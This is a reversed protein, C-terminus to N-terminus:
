QSKEKTNKEKTATTATSASSATTTTTAETAERQMETLLDEIKLQLDGQQNKILDFVVHSAATGTTQRTEHKKREDLKEDVPNLMENLLKLLRGTTSSRAAGLIKKVAKDIDKIQQENAKENPMLMGKLKQLQVLIRGGEGEGKGKELPLKHFQMILDEVDVNFFPVPLDFLRVGLYLELATLASAWCDWAAGDLLFYLEKKQANIAEIKSPITSLEKELNQLETGKSDGLATIQQKIEKQRKVLANKADKLEMAKKQYIREREFAEPPVMRPNAVPRSQYKKGPLYACTGRDFGLVKKQLGLGLNSPKVDFWSFNNITLDSVGEFIQHILNLKLMDAEESDGYQDNIAGVVKSLDNCVFKDMVMQIQYARDLPCIKAQEKKQKSDVVVVAGLLEVSHNPSFEYALATLRLEHLVDRVTFDEKLEFSKVAIEVDRDLECQYFCVAGYGGACTETDVPSYKIGKVTIPAKEDIQPLMAMCIRDFLDAAREQQKVNMTNEPDLWSKFAEPAWYDCVMKIAEGGLAAKLATVRKDSISAVSEAMEKNETSVIISIKERLRELVDYFKPYASKLSRFQVTQANQHV